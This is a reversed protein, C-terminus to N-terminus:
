FYHQEVTSSGLLNINHVNQMTLDYISTHQMSICKTVLWLAFNWVIESSYLTWSRIISLWTELPMDPLQFGYKMQIIKPKYAQVDNEWSLREDYIM